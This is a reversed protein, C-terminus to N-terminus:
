EETYRNKIENAQNILEEANKLTIETIEAGGLTRALEAARQNGEILDVTTHTSNLDTHKQILYHSDALAAIQPLHTICIVQKQRSIKVLKEGIAQAARGSVGTDIEDFILTDAAEGSAYVSKMALM